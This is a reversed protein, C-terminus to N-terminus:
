ELLVASQQIGSVATDPVQQFGPIVPGDLDQIYNGKEPHPTAVRVGRPQPPPPFPPGWQDGDQPQSGKRGWNKGLGPRQFSFCNWSLLSWITICSSFLCLTLM